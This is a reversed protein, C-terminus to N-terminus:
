NEDYSVGAIDDWVSAVTTDLTGDSIDAQDDEDGVQSAISFIFSSIVVDNGRLITVGLDHRKAAKAASYSSTDEGVIAHAAKIVAQKVRARFTTDVVIAMQQTYTM